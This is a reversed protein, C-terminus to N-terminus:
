IMRRLGHQWCRRISGKPTPLRRAVTMVVRPRSTRVPPEVSPPEFRIWLRLVIQVLSAVSVHTRYFNRLPHLQHKKSITSNLHIPLNQFQEQLLTWQSRLYLIHSHLNRQYELLMLKGKSCLELKSSRYLSMQWHGNISGRIHHSGKSTLYLCPGKGLLSLSSSQLGWSIM